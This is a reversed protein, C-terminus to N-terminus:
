GMTQKSICFDSTRRLKHYLKLSIKREENQTWNRIPFILDIKIIQLEDKPQEEEEETEDEGEVDDQGDDAGADDEDQGEVKEEDNAADDDDKAQDEEEEEQLISFLENLKLDFSHQLM